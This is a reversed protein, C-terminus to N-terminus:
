VAVAEVVRRAVAARGYTAVTRARAREGMARTGAPDALLKMMAAALASADKPPVRLGTEGEVVTTRVGPLDSVVAPIGCAAAELTVLGFAESRDVSPLVLFSASGYAAPLDADPVKGLFTVREKLGLAHTRAEYSARLDGDGVVALTVSTKEKAVSAFAELLIDIGKFYHARDLAGVFLARAERASPAPLFRDTDVSLPVEVLKADPVLRAAQSGSFYDKSTTVVRDAASMIAPLFLARYAAFVAGLWGTGVTDMHYLVTLRKGRGFLAKWLWVWEAGGFFPYHLEVADFARLRWLLQPVCAANGWRFLPRLGVGPALVTVEHGAEQLARVHDAAVNGMGGKYPPYTSVAVAIKMSM